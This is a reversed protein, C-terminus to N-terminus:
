LSSNSHQTARCRSQILKNLSPILTHVATSLTFLVVSATPHIIKNQTKRVAALTDRSFNAIINYLWCPARETEEGCKTGRAIDTSTRSHITISNNFSRRPTYSHVLAITQNPLKAPLQHRIDIGLIWSLLSFSSLAQQHLKINIHHIYVSLLFPLRNFIVIMNM